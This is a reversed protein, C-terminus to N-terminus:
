APAAGEDDSPPQVGLDMNALLHSLGRHHPTALALVITVVVFVPLLPWNPPVLDSSLLLYGGVGTVYKVVRSLLENKGSRSSPRLQVIAEGLTRGAALVCIAQVVAPVGILLLQDVAEPLDAATANLVYLAGARWAVDLGLGLFLMVMADALMGMLRRGASVTTVRPAPRSQAVFWAIPAGIVSGILAGATNLMIDDVDFVRYACHYLGWIGTRQTFEILASVAFGLATALVVGKRAPVRLFFGLPGFFVVNFFAQFLARNRRWPHGERRIDDLFQFPHLNSRACEFTDNAPLPILTYTWLAMAYVAVMVLLAIDLLRLRGAKRYRVAVLPLFAAVALVFGVLVAIITSTSFQRLM